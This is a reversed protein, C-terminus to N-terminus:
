LGWKALVVGILAALAMWIGNEKLKDLLKNPKDKEAEVWEVITDLKKDVSEKWAQFGTQDRELAGIRNYMEGHTKSSNDRYRNFEKELSNVRAAVQCNDCDPM